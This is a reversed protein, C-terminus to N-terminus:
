WDGLCVSRRVLEPKLSGQKKSYVSSSASFLHESPVSTAPIALYDCAMHALDP